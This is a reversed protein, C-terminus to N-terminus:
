HWTPHRSIRVPILTLFNKKIKSNGNDKPIKVTPWKPKDKNSKRIKLRMNENKSNDLMSFNWMWIESHIGFIELKLKDMCLHIAFHTHTFRVQLKHFQKFCCLFGNLLLETVQNVSLHPMFYFTPALVVLSTWFVLLVHVLLTPLATLKIGLVM